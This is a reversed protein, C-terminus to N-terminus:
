EPTGAWGPILENLEKIREPHRGRLAHKRYAAVLSTLSRETEDGASPHPRRGNKATWDLLEDRREQWLRQSGFARGNAWGTCGADLLSAAEPDFRGQRQLIRMRKLARYLEEEEGGSAATM